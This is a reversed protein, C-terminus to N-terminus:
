PIVVSLIEGVLRNRWSSARRALRELYSTTGAPSRFTLRKHLRLRSTFPMSDKFGM